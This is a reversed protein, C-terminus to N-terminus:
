VYQAKRGGAARRGSGSVPQIRFDDLKKGSKLQVAVWQPQKGRGAWNEAPDAPNRYKPFVRPYPRREHRVIDSSAGNSQLQQLQRELKAKEAAIRSALVSAIKLHLTWLEDVSM